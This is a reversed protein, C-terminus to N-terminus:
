RAREDDEAACTPCTSLIEEGTRETGCRGCFWPAQKHACKGKHGKDLRCKAGKGADKGCLETQKNM